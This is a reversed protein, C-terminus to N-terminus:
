GIPSLALGFRNRPSQNQQDRTPSDDYVRVTRDDHRFELLRL